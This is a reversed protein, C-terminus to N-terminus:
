STKSRIQNIMKSLYGRLGYSTNKMLQMMKSAFADNKLLYKLSRKCIFDTLKSAEEVPMSDINLFFDIRESDTGLIDFNAKILKITYGYISLEKLQELSMGDFDGNLHIIKQFKNNTKMFNYVEINKTYLQLYVKLPVREDYVFEKNYLTKGIVYKEYAKEDLLKRTIESNLPGSYELFDLTELTVKSCKNLSNVLSIYDSRISASIGTKGAKKFRDLLEEEMVFLLDHTIIMYNIKESMSSITRVKKYLNLIEERKEIDLSCYDVNGFPIQNFASISWTRSKELIFSAFEYADEATKVISTVLQLFTEKNVNILNDDFFTKIDSISLIDKEDEMVFPLPSSFVGIHKEKIEHNCQLLSRRYAFFLEMDISFVEQLVSLTVNEDYLEETFYKNYISNLVFSKYLGEEFLRAVTSPSLKIIINNKQLGELYSSPVENISEFYKEILLAEEKQYSNMLTNFIPEDVMRNNILLSIINAFTEKEIIVTLIAM